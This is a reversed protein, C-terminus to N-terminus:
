SDSEFRIDMRRTQPDYSITEIRRESPQQQVQLLLSQLSISASSATLHASPFLVFCIDPDKPTAFPIPSRKVAM